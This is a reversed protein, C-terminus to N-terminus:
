EPDALSPVLITFTAGKGIASEVRVTGNMREVVHKVISLGLGTGGVERSRAKDVRYFREFIRPLEDSPIGSGNDAVTIFTKGERTLGSEVKVEGGRRNFKVANDILNILAQELRIKHGLVMLDAADGCQLKVGRVRAESEVTTLATEIADRVSVREPEPAPRGSELESLTMLDAAINNLRIAHAQIIEVFRRNNETDELAGDLLTEAYGRIATLPTRLEHSVNAVFDKRVRELREIDTIDHLIIIAGRSQPTIALPAAQAEFSKGEGSSLELKHKLPRGTAIVQTLLNVLIPDRVLDLVPTGPAVPRAAGLARALSDNCFIVQLRNDAALVGESMSSLIAERRGSELSLRDLLEHIRSAMRRLSQNLLGLEDEAQPMETEPLKADLLRETLAQLNRIRKALLLSFVYAIIQALTAAALIELLARFATDMHVSDHAWDLALLALAILLFAIWVRNRFLSLKIM